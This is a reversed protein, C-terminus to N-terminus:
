LFPTYKDTRPYVDAAEYDDQLLTRNHSLKRTLGRLPWETLLEYPSKCRSVTQFHSVNSPILLRNGSRTVLSYYYTSNLYCELDRQSQTTSQLYAVATLSENFPAPIIYLQKIMPKNISTLCGKLTATM